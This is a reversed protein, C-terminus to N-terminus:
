KLYKKLYKGTYSKSSKAVAEPTGETVIYGGDDGSEPGLDIIWDACKIVDLNHEIVLVSNGKKILQEFCKLLKSVDNFHLGTTPEDFIFLTNNGKDQFTLHYALKVRQSEGGSLTSGSQGLRIYGLGVDDLIKLKSVIKPYPKFFKIADTVTMDLVESINKHSGDGGKLTIDLVDLKYRKGRCVECELLIDAMFQMEIKVIGTGECTECRGGPVNFSFYGPTLGKRKAASTSSFAERIVDFAKIYTVPNSRLTRGIPTQDVIEVSDIKKVGVIEDHSGIKENYSGELKKKLAGYLIDNVLTSKGSGSVGTICAFVNLPINVDIDKLNNESAGKVTIFDSKSDVKRRSAPVKIQEKGSLYKGTLSKKDTLIEKYSGQFVLEGGQEGALPGMDIIEDSAEMMDSDHEVVIVTNGLDRLSKMISILRDNDRPHLGISPEDLVYVSGVLSSGLSTSLNIRQSEGGSLTNSLRDLTLYTLGVENLYKLRSIIEELIRGSIQKDYASLKLDIFFDYAESIKMKVIDAITKDAIKVYLAEKRLRSGDCESCTTYARYKNLLVRYHLKYSAEKEVRKFFKDVGIFSKGGKFIKKMEDSTFKGVPKHIDIGLDDAVEILSSLHKSHKPTSFPAIAGQFISKKKDPIVLDYDIDMTRGFGQCRECAGFPNNFSFMRPEPELFRIGDRELYHNYEHDDYATENMVRITVFGDSEKYAMEISDNLRSLTEQDSVDLTFRDVIIKLPEDKSSKWIKEILDKDEIDNLDVIEDKLFLRYFGKARLGTLVSQLIAKDTFNQKFYVYLKLTGGKALGSIEKIITDPLDKTVLKGSEPSYTKGIRAFLLRLYDYIETTTGVTSRPNRTRTKQEIAMSPALGAMFDVDPKNMRELFQRAYSSLSEVYRRQGEAYITDFVLSSKGSGSVGTVVVLKQKPIDVDINKLNHVRAGRIIIFKRADPLSKGAPGSGNKDSSAKTKKIVKEM